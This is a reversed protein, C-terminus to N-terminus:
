KATPCITPIKNNAIIAEFPAEPTVPVPNTVKAAIRVATGDIGM